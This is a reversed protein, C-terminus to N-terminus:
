AAVAYAKKDYWNGGVPCLEAETRLPAVIWPWREHLTAYLETAKIIIADVESPHADILMSDYVQLLIQSRMRERRMWRQLQILVWLLCHFASGQVPYNIVENRSYLGRCVFGTHTPFWGRKLYQKYWAVRWDRYVPFEQNWLYEEVEMIHRTFSHAPPRDRGTVAGLGRIGAARLHDYLPVGPATALGQHAIQEWLSKACKVYYDGYFEAFVFYSKATQRMPKSVEEVPTKYCRSALQKHFDFGDWLYQLMRPDRHYCAAVCVEASWLDLELLQHGDRAIFLPRILKALRPERIPVNLLNPQDGSPRYTVTTNLNFFARLRDGQLERKIGMLHTSLLKKLEEVKIFRKAFPMDLKELATKDVKLRGSKGRVEEGPYPVGMTNFLVEGLQLRSGLNIAQGYQKRWHDYVPDARLRDQEGAIRKRIRGITKDLLQVDIRVGAREMAAFAISGQQLLDYAEKTPTM